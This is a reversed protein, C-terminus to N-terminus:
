LHDLHHRLQRVMADVLVSTTDAAATVIYDPNFSSIDVKYVAGPMVKFEKCFSRRFM